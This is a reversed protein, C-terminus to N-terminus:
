PHRQRRTSTRLPLGRHPRQRGVAESSVENGSARAIMEASRRWRASWPGRSEPRSTRHGAMASPFRGGVTARVAASCRAEAQEVIAIYDETSKPEITSTRLREQARSRSMADTGAIGQLALVWGELSPKAVGGIVGIFWESENRIWALAAAVAEERDPDSDVDRSFAVADAVQEYATLVLGLVNFYDGHSPGALRAGGARFKQISRWPLKGTCEWGDACARRLLTEIVGRARNGYGDGVGLENNGEGVVWVKASVIL